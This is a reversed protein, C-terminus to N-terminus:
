IKVMKLKKSHFNLKAKNILLQSILSFNIRHKTLHNHLPSLNRSDLCNIEAKNSIFFSIIKRTSSNNMVYYHLPTKGDNDKLNVSNGKGLLDLIKLTIKENFFNQESFLHFPNKNLFNTYSPDLKLDILSKLKDYNLDFYLLTTFPAILNKPPFLEIHKKFIKLNGAMCLYQFPTFGMLNIKETNETKEIIFRFIEESINQKECVYHLPIKQQFDLNFNAKKEFLFQLTKLECLEDNKIVKLLLPTEYKRVCNWVSLDM